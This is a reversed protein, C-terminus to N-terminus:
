QRERTAANFVTVLMGVLAGLFVYGFIAQFAATLRYEERPAMDGYGLTTFTVISFYLADRWRPRFVQDTGTMVLGIQSYYLAHTAIVTLVGGALLLLVTPPSGTEAVDLCGGLLIVFLSVQMLLMQWVAPVDDLVAYVAIPLAVSLAVFLWAFPSVSKM